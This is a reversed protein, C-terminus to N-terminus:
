LLEARVGQSPLHDLAAAYAQITQCADWARREDGLWARAQRLPTPQDFEDM